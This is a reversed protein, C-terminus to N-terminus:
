VNWHSFFEFCSAIFFLPVSALVVVAVDRLSKLPFHYNYVKWGISANYRYLDIGCRVGAGICLSFPIFQMILVILYYAGSRVSSFRSRQEGDVSVIGGIWGQYAVTFYPLVVGFGLLTQPIAAFFLNGTCDNIAASLNNGVQYELSAKDNKMVNSVIRDGQSLAFENGQHAMVIGCTCALCYTLFVSAVCTRCRRLAE